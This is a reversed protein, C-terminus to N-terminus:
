SIKDLLHTKAKQFEFDNIIGERHLKSLMELEMALEGTDNVPGKRDVQSIDIQNRSLLELIKSRVHHEQFPGIGENTGSLNLETKRGIRDITLEVTVPNYADFRLKERYILGEEQGVTFMDLELLAQECIRRLTEPGVDFYMGESFFSM